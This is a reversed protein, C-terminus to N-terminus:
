QGAQVPSSLAYSSWTRDAGVMLKPAQLYLYFRCPGASVTAPVQWTLERISSQLADAVLIRDGTAPAAYITLGELASSLGSVGWALLVTGDLAVPLNGAPSVWYGMPALGELEAAFASPNTAALSADFLAAVLKGPVGAKRQVEVLGWWGVQQAPQTALSQRFAAEASPLNGEALAIRGQVNFIDYYAANLRIAEALASRALEPNDNFTLQAHALSTWTGPELPNIRTLNDYVDIAGRDGSGYLLQAYAIQIAPNFRDLVIARQYAHKARDRWTVAIEPPTVGALAHCSSAVEFAYRANFPNLIRATELDRPLKWSSMSVSAKRRGAVLCVEASTSLVFLVTLLCLVVLGTAPMWTRSRLHDSKVQKAGPMSSTAARLPLGRVWWSAEAQTVLGACSGLLVAPVVGFVYFLSDIDFCSHALTGAIGVVVAFPLARNSSLRAARLGIWLMALVLALLLFFGVIGGETLTKVLLSHPDTSFSLQSRFKMYVSSYTGLGSGLVPYARLYPSLDRFMQLRGGLQFGTEARGQVIEQVVAVFRQVLPIWIQTRAVPVAISAVVLVAVLGYAVAVHRMQRGSVCKCLWGALPLALLVGAVVLMGGRSGTLVLASMLVIAGALGLIRERVRSSFAVMAVGICIPLILFGALANPYSFFVSFRKFDNSVALANALVKVPGAAVRSSVVLLVMGVVMAVVSAGFLVRVLTHLREESRAFTFAFLFMGLLGVLKLLEHLTAGRHVSIAFSLLGFLAVAIILWVLPSVAVPAVAGFRRRLWPVAVVFLAVLGLWATALQELPMWRTWESALLISAVIILSLYWVHWTRRSPALGGTAHYERLAL